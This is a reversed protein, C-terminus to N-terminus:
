QHQQENENQNQLKKRQPLLEEYDNDKKRTPIWSMRTSNLNPLEETEFLAGKGPFPIV